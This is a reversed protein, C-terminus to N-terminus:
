AVRRRRFAAFATALCSSAGLLVLSSQEPVASVAQIGEIAFILDNFQNDSPIPNGPISARTLDEFAFLNTAKGTVISTGSFSMLQDMGGPNASALGFFPWRNKGPVGLTASGVGNLAFASQNTQFLSLTSDPILFFGLRTGGAVSLTKTAGPNDVVDNFVLTAASLAQTAYAIKGADTSTDIADLAPTDVYYGFNFLFSGTDAKFRFTLDVPGSGVVQYYSLSTEVIPPIAHTGFEANLAATVSPYSGPSSSYSVIDGRASAPWPIQALMIVALTALRRQM